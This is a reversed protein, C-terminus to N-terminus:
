IINEKASKLLVQIHHKCNEWGTNHMISEPTRTALAGLDITNEVEAEIASIIDDLLSLESQSQECLKQVRPNDIGSLNYVRTSCVHRADVLLKKLENIKM